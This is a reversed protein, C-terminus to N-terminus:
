HLMLHCNIAMVALTHASYIVKWNSISDRTHTVYSFQLQRYIYEIKPLNWTISGKMKRLWALDRWNISSKKEKIRKREKGKRKKKSCKCARVVTSTVKRTTSCTCLVPDINPCDAPWWRRWRNGCHLTTLTAAFPASPERDIAPGGWWAFWERQHNRPCPYTIMREGSRSRWKM